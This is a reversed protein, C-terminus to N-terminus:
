PTDNRDSDLQFKIAEEVKELDESSLVSERFTCSTVPM